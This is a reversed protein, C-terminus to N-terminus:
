REHALHPGALAAFAAVSRRDQGKLSAQDAESDADARYATAPLHLWFSSRLKTAAATRSAKAQVDRDAQLGRGLERRVPPLFPRLLVDDPHGRPRRQRRRRASGAGVLRPRVQAM